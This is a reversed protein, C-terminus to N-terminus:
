PTAGGRTRRCALCTGTDAPNVNGCSPCRWTAAADGPGSAFAAAPDGGCELCREVPDGTNWGFVPIFFLTISRRARFLGHDTGRGCAVCHRSRTEVQKFEDKLGGLLFWFM